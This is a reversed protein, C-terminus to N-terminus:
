DTEPWRNKEWTIGNGRTAEDSAKESDTLLHQHHLPDFHYWKGDVKVMTWYHLAVDYNRYGHIIYAEYGAETLLFYTLSAFHYCVGHGKEYLYVALEEYSPLENLSDEADYYLKDKPSSNNMYDYINDISSGYKKLIKRCYDSLKDRIEGANGDNDAMPVPSVPISPGGEESPPTTYYPVDPPYTTREGPIDTEDPESTPRVKGTFHGCSTLICVTVLICVTLTLFKVTKRRIKGQFKM